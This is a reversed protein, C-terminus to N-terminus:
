VPALIGYPDGPGAVMHMMSLLWERFARVKTLHRKHEPYVLHFSRPETALHPFLPVLQGAAIADAFMPPSLMAVGHGALAAHGDLVQSDFRIGREHRSVYDVDSLSAFWFDWWEDSPSLRPAASLEAPTEIRHAELFGPSAMPTIVQRMLFDSAM